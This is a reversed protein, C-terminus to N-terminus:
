QRQRATKTRDNGILPSVTFTRDKTPTARFLNIFLGRHASYCHRQQFLTSREYRVFSAFSVGGLFGYMEGLSHTPKLCIKSKTGFPHWDTAATFFYFRISQVFVNNELDPGVVADDWSANAPRFSVKSWFNTNVCSTLLHLAGELKQWRRGQRLTSSFPRACSRHFSSM